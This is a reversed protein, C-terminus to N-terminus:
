EVNGFRTAVLVALVLTEEMVPINAVFQTVLIIVLGKALIRGADQGARRVHARRVVLEKSRASHTVPTVHEERVLIAPQVNLLALLAVAVGRQAALSKRQVFGGRRDRVNLRGHLPQVFFHANM